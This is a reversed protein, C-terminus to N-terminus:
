AVLDNHATVTMKGQKRWIFSISRQLRSATSSRYQPGHFMCPVATREPTPLEPPLPLLVQLGPPCTALALDGVAACVSKGPMRKLLPFM